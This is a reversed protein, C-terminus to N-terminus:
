ERDTAECTVQFYVQNETSADVVNSDPGFMKRRSEVALVSLNLPM